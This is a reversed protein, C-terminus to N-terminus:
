GELKEKEKIGGGGKKKIKIKLTERIIKPRSPVSIIAGSERTIFSCIAVPLAPLEPRTEHKRVNPL